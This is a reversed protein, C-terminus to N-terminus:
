HGVGLWVRVKRLRQLITFTFEPFGPSYRYLDVERNLLVFTEKLVSDLQEMTRLTNEKPLKLILPLRLGRVTTASKNKTGKGGDRLPKMGIEKMDLLGVLLSTTPIFTETSAALQQLLRVCHLRLPVFLATPVLRCVGFIIETMPYLLSRLMNAEEDKGVGGGLKSMSGDEGDFSASTKSKGCAACLVAVWLKLCHVYQWCCVVSKSEPTQKMMASRLHLALQRIYVFAHQYASAYDLTYLEVVCNGMFTLTPLVSTVNSATGFKSRKAYSLYTLKLCDEIFPYPQTIALQRVRLFAHLRVTNYEESTDLPACWLQVCTKLYLKSLKPYATFYPIYKALSSLVFQLLKAEKGAESLIHLTSKLFSEILPRLAQWRPSKALNKPHLPKNEDITSSEDKEKPAATNTPEDDDDDDDDEPKDKLLHHYFEEHCQVLCVAMVRDFVVPSTFHFEKKKRKKGAGARGSVDDDDGDGDEDENDDKDQDQQNADSLHCATRYASILRKLGKISHTAFAGQELQQMRQPTLLFKNEAAKQQKKFHSQMAYKEEVSKDKGEDDDDSLIDNVMYDEMADEDQMYDDEDGAEDMGDEDDDDGFELLSSENEKLYKHFEPDKSSLQELQRKLRKESAEIDEEESGLSTYSDLSSEDDGDQHRGDDDEESDEEPDGVKAGGDQGDDDDDDDDNWGGGMVAKEFFSDMDLQGLNETNLFDHSMREKEAREADEKRSSSSSAAAATKSGKEGSGSGSNRKMSPKGKKALKTGKKELAKAAGGTKTNFKRSRKTTKVM